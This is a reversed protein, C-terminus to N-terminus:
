AAPRDQAAASAADIADFLPTVRGAVYPPEGSHAFEYAVDVCDYRTIAGRDADLTGDRAEVRPAYREFLGSLSADLGHQLKKFLVGDIQDATIIELEARLNAAKMAREQRRKIDPPSLFDEASNCMFFSPGGDGQAAMAAVHPPYGTDRILERNRDFFGPDTRDLLTWPSKVRSLVHVQGLQVVFEHGIGLGLYAFPVQVYSSNDIVAALTRPAIKAIMHAIYGGHSSGFAIIRRADFAAGRARLDGLVALHDMAQLVGFNQTEGEPPMIDAEVQFGPKVRGTRGCLDTLDRLDTANEGNVACMGAMLLRARMGIDLKAGLELRSRLCHYVVSVAVLGHSRAIRRRLKAAYADAADAGFGPIVFVLGRAPTEDPLTATYRLPARECGVEFDQPGELEGVIERM